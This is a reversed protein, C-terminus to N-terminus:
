DIKSNWQDLLNAGAQYNISTLYSVDLLIDGLVPHDIQIKEGENAIPNATIFGSGSFQFVINNKNNPLTTVANTSFHISQLESRPIVMKAYTGDLTLQQDKLKEIKGAFRDKGNSLMVIDHLDSELSPASDIIGNWPAISIESVRTLYNDGGYHALFGFTQGEPLKDIGKLSWQNVLQQGYYLSIVQKKRSVRLEIETQNNEFERNTSARGNVAKITTYSSEGNDSVAYSTLTANHTGLKIALCSGFLATIREASNLRTPPDDNQRGVKKLDAYIIVAINSHRPSETIYRLRFADPLQFDSLHISGMGGRNYWGFNGFEWTHDEAELQQESYQKPMTSVEWNEKLYPGQYLVQQGLPNLTCNKVHKKPIVLDGAFDTHVYLKDESITSLSCPLIDGNSLTLLSSHTFPKRSLGKNFVVKRLESTKFTIPQDAQESKWTLGQTGDFGVFEGHLTDNNKFNLIDQAAFLSTTSALLSLAIPPLRM